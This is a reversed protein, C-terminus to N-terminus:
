PAGSGEASLARMRRFFDRLPAGPPHFDFFDELEDVTAEVGRKRAWEIFPVLVPSAHELELRLLRSTAEGAALFGSTEYVEFIRELDYAVQRLEVEWGWRGGRTFVAYTYRRGTTIERDVHHTERTTAM